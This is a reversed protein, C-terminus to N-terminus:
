PVDVFYGAVTVSGTLVDSADSRSVQFLVSTGPGAYARLYHTGTYTPNGQNSLGQRLLSINYQGFPGAPALRTSVKLDSLTDTGRLTVQATVTEIICRKGQPVPFLIEQISDAGGLVLIGKTEQFPQRGSDVDRVLVPNAETNIVNVSPTNVVNVDREPPSGNGQGKGSMPTVLSISAVVAALVAVAFLSSKLQKM